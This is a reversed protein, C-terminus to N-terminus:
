TLYHKLFRGNVPGSTVRSGDYNQFFFANKGSLASINYPGKWLHDFNGHKGKYEFRVDCKLVLDRLHFDDAKIKRDFTKKMKDQILQSRDYASERVQQVEILQNIRIQIANPESEQEQLCKM